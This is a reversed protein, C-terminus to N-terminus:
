NRNPNEEYVRKSFYYGVVATTIAAVFGDRGMWLLGFCGVLVVLAVVDRPQFKDIFYRIKMTTMKMKM